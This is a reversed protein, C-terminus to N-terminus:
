AKPPPTFVDTYSSNLPYLDSFDIFSNSNLELNHTNFSDLTKHKTFKVEKVFIDKINENSSDEHEIELQMILSNM